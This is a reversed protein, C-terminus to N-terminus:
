RQNPHSHCTKRRTERRCNRGWFPVSPHPSTNESMATTVVGKQSLGKLAKLMLDLRIDELIESHVM